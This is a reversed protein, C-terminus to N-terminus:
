CTVAASQRRGIIKTCHNWVQTNEFENEHIRTECKSGCKNRSVKALVSGSNIKPNLNSYSFLDTEDKAFCLFGSFGTKQM